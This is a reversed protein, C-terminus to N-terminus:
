HSSQLKKGIMRFLSINSDQQPFHFFKEFFSISNSNLLITYFSVTNVDSAIIQKVSFEDNYSLEYSDQGVIKGIIECLSKFPISSEVSIRRFESGIQLKISIKNSM